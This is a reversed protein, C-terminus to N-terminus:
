SKVEYLYSIALDTDPRARKSAFLVKAVLSHIQERKIKPLKKADVNIEFLNQPAALDKTGKVNPMIEDFNKLCEEIYKPMSIKVLGKESYDLTMGLYEHLKGRNWKELAM